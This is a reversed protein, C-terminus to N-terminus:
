MATHTHTQTDGEDNSPLPETFMGKDNSSLLETFIVRNNSPLPETSVDGRYRICVCYYFFKYSKLNKCCHNQLTVDEPIIRRTTRRTEVSTKSSCIAEM